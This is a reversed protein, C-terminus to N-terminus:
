GHESAACDDYSRLLDDPERFLKNSWSRLLDDPDRVILPPLLTDQAYREVYSLPPIQPTRAFSEDESDSQDALSLPPIQPVADTM